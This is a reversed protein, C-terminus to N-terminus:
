KFESMLKNYDKLMLSFKDWLATPSLVVMDPFWRKFLMVIM